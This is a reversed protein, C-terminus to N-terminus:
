AEPEAQQGIRQAFEAWLQAYHQALQEVLGACHPPVVANLDAWRAPGIANQQLLRLLQRGEDKLRLSPDRVLKELVTAPDVGRQEAKAGGEAREPPAEARSSRGLLRAAAGGSRQEPFPPAAAEGRELRKRVDSATAPSVGARRALERLSAHPHEAILEVVRRRGEAGDVPRVRGDRGVRVAPQAGSDASQGRIAAVTKAGLGAVEAIARDSLHPHSAIIRAAAARRDAQSLPFGHAVNAHVAHLFADAAPGDFFRAAITTDGRVIAAILRHMGDIVRLGRRQVLIPPLPGEIEALRAVHEEDHGELRPSEGPVLMVVPMSVIESELLAGTLSGTTSSQAIEYQAHLLRIDTATKPM